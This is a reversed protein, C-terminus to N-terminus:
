RCELANSIKKLNDQMIEIYGIDKKAEGATINAGPQLVDVSIHVEKSIAKIAKDSTFSEFFVVSLNHERVHDVINAVDKASAEADPSLGSLSEVNFGYDKALYSFANHDVIITDKQCTSLRNKYEKKLSKLSSIYKDENKLYLDKNNPMIKILESTIVKTAIIMNNIDLWYHPDYSSSQHKEEHEHYHEKDLSILKVYKSMNIVEHKFEFGDIWPELGAGSYIILDSKQIKVMLKPTPEFDHVEVGFPLIMYLAVTDDAINKTIDYLAFTSCGVLSKSNQTDSKRDNKMYVFLILVFVVLLFIIKKYNM